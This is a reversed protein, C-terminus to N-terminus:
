DAPSHQISRLLAPSRRLTLAVSSVCMKHASAPATIIDAFGDNNVDGSAISVGGSFTAPYAFFENLVTTLGASFVRVHPGGGPGAAVLVDDFGDNNTDGSAVRVGGRFSPTFVFRETVINANSDFVRVHPGGGPGAAIIIEDRGDNNIDGAAVYLGGTFNPAFAFFERMLNGTTGDYVKIHPGGGAGPATIIDQTGDGNVDGVAVRVGGRFNPAYAVFNFREAGSAFDYVRVYPGGGPGAGTAVYRAPTTPAIQTAALSNAFSPLTSLSTPSLNALVAGYRAASALLREKTEASAVLAEGFANGVGLQGSALTFTIEDPGAMGGQSGVSVGMGTFPYPDYETLTYQGARMAGFLFTGSPGTMMSRNVTQGLDDTGTLVLTVGGIGPENSDHVGDLDSDFFVIGSIGGDPSDDDNITGSGTNGVSASGAVVSGSLTFTENPETFTDPVTAIRALISTGLAPM